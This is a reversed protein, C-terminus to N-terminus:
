GRASSRRLRDTIALGPGWGRSPCDPETAVLDLDLVVYAGFALHLKVSRTTVCDADEGLARARTLDVSKVDANPHPCRLIRGHLLGTPQVDYTYKARGSVKAAGDLRDHDHGVVSLKQDPDYPPIDGEPLRVELEKFSDGFGVRITVDRSDSM